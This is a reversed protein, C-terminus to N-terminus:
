IYHLRALQVMYPVESGPSASFATSFVLNLVPLFVALLVTPQVKWSAVTQKDSAIIIGAAAGM